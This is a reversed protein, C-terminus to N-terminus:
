SIPVIQLTYGLPTLVRLLTDIQPSHVDKELRSIIPQKLNCKEALQAQSVGQSERIEVLSRILAKEMEIIKEEEPTLSLEERFEKWNSM